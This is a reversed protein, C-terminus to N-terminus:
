NLYNIVSILSIKPSEITMQFRKFFLFVLFGDIVSQGGRMTGTENTEVRGQNQVKAVPM